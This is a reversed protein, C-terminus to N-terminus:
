AAEEDSPELDPDDSEDTVKKFKLSDYRDAEDKDTRAGLYVPQFLSGGNPFCYLYEVEVCAGVKPIEKNVPITVSGVFQFSEDTAVGVQVSRKTKSISLVGVTATAKFKFKLAYKSKGVQYPAAVLKFVLGEGGRAKVEHFLSLKDASSFATEVLKISGGARNFYQKLREYRTRMPEDMLDDGNMKLFDWIYLTEGIEEGDFLYANLTILESFNRVAQPIVVYEGKRNIGRVILGSNKELMRREGDMKEQVCYSPNNCLQLAHEEDKVEKLLMPLNGSTEKMIVAPLATSTGDEGASQSVVRYQKENVQKNIAGQYIALAQEYTVPTSTKTGGQSGQIEYGPGPVRRGFRFNVTWQDASGGLAIAYVKDSGGTACHLVISESQM